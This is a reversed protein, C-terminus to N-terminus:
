PGADGAREGAPPAAAECEEPPGDPSCHQCYAYNCRTCRPGDHYGVSFAFFDIDGDEERSWTHGKPDLAELTAWANGDTLHRRATTQETSM